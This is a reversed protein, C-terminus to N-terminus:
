SADDDGLAIKAAALIAALEPNNKALEVIADYGSVKANQRARHEALGAGKPEREPELALDYGVLESNAVLTRIFQARTLADYDDTPSDKAENWLGKEKADDNTFRLLAEDVTDNFRESIGASLSYVKERVVLKGTKQDKVRAQMVGGKYTAPDTSPLRFEVIVNEKNRKVDSAGSPLEFDDVVTNASRAM